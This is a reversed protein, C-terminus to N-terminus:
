QQSSIHECPAIKSLCLSIRRSNEATPNSLHGRTGPTVDQEIEIIRKIGILGSEQAMDVLADVLVKEM